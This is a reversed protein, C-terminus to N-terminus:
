AKAQRRSAMGLGALAIGMLALPAPAPVGNPRDYRTVVVNDLAPGWCCGSTTSALSLTSSIANATFIFSHDEWVMNAFSGQNIFSYSNLMGAVSVDMTKTSPSGAINGSMAFSVRYDQGVVTTFSQSVTAPGRNGNMDLSKTGDAHTWLSNIQDVNTSLSWGTLSGVTCFSGACADDEFSGNVLLNAHATSATTIFALAAALKLLFKSM